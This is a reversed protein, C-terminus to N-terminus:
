RLNLHNIDPTLHIVYNFFTNRFLSMWHLLIRLNRDGLRVIQFCLLKCVSTAMSSASWKTSFISPLPSPNDHFQATVYIEITYTYKGININKQIFPSRLLLTNTWHVACTSMSAIGFSSENIIHFTSIVMSIIEWVHQYCATKTSRLGTSETRPYNTRLICAFKVM